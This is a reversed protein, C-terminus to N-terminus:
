AQVKLVGEARDSHWCHQELVGEGGVAFSGMPDSKIRDSQLLSCMVLDMICHLAICVMSRGGEPYGPGSGPGFSSIWPGYCMSDMWAMRLLALLDMGPVLDLGRVAYPM